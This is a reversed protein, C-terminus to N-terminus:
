FLENHFQSVYRYPNTRDRLGRWGFDASIKLASHSAAAVGAIAGIAASTEALASTGIYGAIGGAIVSFPKLDLSAKLNTLRVPFRWEKSVRIADACSSDIKTMCQQLMTHPDASSNIEQLLTDLEVRLRHLESYRRLRFELIENLPVDKDPVPVARHLEVLMGGEAILRQQAVLISNEGQAMAWRGPEQADAAEFAKLQAAIIIDSGNGSLQFHPRTLIKAKELFEADPGSQIFIGSNSPWILKDWFLLSFRLEQADLNTSKVRISSGSIEIPASIVLGRKEKGYSPDLKKRRKAEGM